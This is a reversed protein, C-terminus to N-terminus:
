QGCSGGNSSNTNLAALPQSCEAPASNFASCIADLYAQPRGYQYVATSQVGNIILTPSGSAGAENSAAAEDIMLSLGESSVCNNIASVDVGANKAADQWCSGDSGCNDNVYTAFQWWKDLGSKQLVCAERQDQDVETQGHLSSVIGNNVSVIYHISWNVKDKLLNYVPLMTNEAQNGYPCFSMVFLKVDPNDSKPVEVSNAISNEENEATIKEKMNIGGEPFLFVGDKSVYSEYEQEGIKLRIKYVDGADSVDVLSAVMGEVLLNDNIYKIAEEAIQQSSSSGSIVKEIKGWNMYVFAGAILLGVIVISIPILNKTIKEIM